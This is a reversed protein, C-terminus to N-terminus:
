NRALQYNADPSQTRARPAACMASQGEALVRLRRPQLSVLEDDLVPWATASPAAHERPNTCLPLLRAATTQHLYEDDSKRSKGAARLEQSEGAHLQRADGVARLRPLRWRLHLEFTCIERTKQAGVNRPQM